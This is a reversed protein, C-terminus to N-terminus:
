AKAAPTKEGCYHGMMCVAIESDCEPCVRARGGALTYQATKAVELLRPLLEWVDNRQSMDWDPDDIRRQLMELEEDTFM